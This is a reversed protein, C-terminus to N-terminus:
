GDANKKKPQPADQTAMKYLLPKVTAPVDNYTHSDPFIVGTKGANNGFEPPHGTLNKLRDEDTAEKGARLVRVVDCRCKWGLPPYRTNWFPHEVPLTIGDLEAHTPRVRDDGATSFRLFYSGKDEQFTLWKAAMQGTAIATDYETRLWSVNYQDHLKLAEAKYEPFARIQGDKILLANLETLLQYNKNASFVYLHQSFKGLLVADPTGYTVEPLTQGVGEEAGALLQGAVEQYMAQWEPTKLMAKVKPQDTHLKAVVNNFLKLLRTEAPDSLEIVEATYGGASTHAPPEPFNPTSMKMSGMGEKKAMDMKSKAPAAKGTLAAFANKMQTMMEMQSKEGEKGTTPATGNMHKEHLEIAKRLWKTAEAVDEKSAALTFLDFLDAMKMVKKKGANPVAPTDTTPDPAPPAPPNKAANEEAIWKRWKFELGAVPYGHKKLFPWLTYNIYMHLFRMRAQVYHEQVREHVEGGSRSGTEQSTAVQGTILYAIEDNVTDVLGKYMRGDQNASSEKIELTENEDLIMWGNSGMNSLANRKDALLADEVADTKLSILPMGFKESRRSWDVRSHRKWFIEPAAKNLIGLGFRGEEDMLAVELLLDTYDYAPDRFPVGTSDYQSLLVQGLEPIVQGRPIVSIRTFEGAHDGETDPYDFQLLTHGYFDTDLVRNLFDLFWPRQLLKLADVNEKNKDDVVAFGESLVKNKLTTMQGTLYLDKTVQYYIAILRDRRPRLPSLAQEEAQRWQAIDADARVRSTTPVLQDKLTPNKKGKRPTITATNGEKAARKKDSLLAM